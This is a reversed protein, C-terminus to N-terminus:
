THFPCERIPSRLTPVFYSWSHLVWRRLGCEFNVSVLLGRRDPLISLNLRLHCRKRADRASGVPPLPYCPEFALFEWVRPLCQAFKTPSKVLAGMREREGDKWTQRNGLERNPSMEDGEKGSRGRWEFEAVQWYVKRCRTQLDEGSHSLHPTNVREKPWRRGVIISLNTWRKWARMKTNLSILQIQQPPGMTRGHPNSWHNCSGCCNKDANNKNIKNKHIEYIKNHCHTFTGLAPLTVIECWMPRQGAGFRIRSFNPPFCTNSLTQLGTTYSNETAIAIAVM